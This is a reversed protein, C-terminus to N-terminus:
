GSMTCFKNLVQMVTTMGEEIAQGFILDNALMLHSILPGHRGACMPKWEGKESSEVILHSLNDMCLVFLYLSMPDRQRVGCHPSFFDTWNGNWLVNSQVFTICNMIVNIMEDPIKVELLVRHIFEWNLRDYAKSLDVKIVFFGL